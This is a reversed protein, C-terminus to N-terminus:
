CGQDVNVIVGPPFNCNAFEGYRERAARDYALAAEYESKFIGLHKPRLQAVWKNRKRGKKLSVGKFRSSTGDHKRMNGAQEIRTAFRLNCRRNDLGCGNRHDIHISPDTVGLIFRHMVVHCNKGNKQFSHQAYFTHRGSIAHWTLKAVREFDSDDVLAIKGRTLPITKM